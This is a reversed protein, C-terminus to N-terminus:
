VAKVNPTVKLGLTKLVFSIGISFALPYTKTILEYLDTLNVFVLSPESVKRFAKMLNLSKLAYIVGSYINNENNVIEDHAILYNRLQNKQSVSFEIKTFTFGVEEM